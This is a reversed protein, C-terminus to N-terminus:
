EADVHRYLTVHESVVGPKAFELFGDGIRITCPSLAGCEFAIRDQYYGYREIQVTAKEELLGFSDKIYAASATQRRAREFARTVLGADVRGAYPYPVFMLALWRDPFFKVFIENGGAQSPKEGVIDPAYHGDLIEGQAGTAAYLTGPLLAALLLVGLLLLVRAIPTMGAGSTMGACAARPGAPIKFLRRLLRLNGSERSHSFNPTMGACAPIEHHRRLLTNGGPPKGSVRSHGGIIMAAFDLPRTMKAVSGIRRVACDMGAVRSAKAPEARAVV